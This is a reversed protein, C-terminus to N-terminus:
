QSDDSSGHGDPHRWSSGFYGEVRCHEHQLVLTEYANTLTVTNSILYPHIM